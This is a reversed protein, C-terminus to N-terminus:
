GPSDENWHHTGHGGSTGPHLGQVLELNDTVRALMDILEQRREADFGQCITQELSMALETAKELVENGHETIHLTRSRRDKPHLRREVLGQSELKDIVSVMSSAPIRLWEAVANQSQGDAFAIARM